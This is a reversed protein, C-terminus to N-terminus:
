EPLANFVIDTIEDGVLVVQTKNEFGCCKSLASMIYTERAEVDDFFFSGFFSVTTVQAKIGRDGFNFIQKSM